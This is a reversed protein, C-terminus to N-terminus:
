YVISVDGFILYRSFNSSGSFVFLFTKWQPKQTKVHTRSARRYSAGRALLDDRARAILSKKKGIRSRFRISGNKKKKKTVNRVIKWDIFLILSQVIKPIVDAADCRNDCFTLFFM